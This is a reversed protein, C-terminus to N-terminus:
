YDFPFPSEATHPPRPVLDEAEQYAKVLEGPQVRNRTLRAVAIIFNPDLALAREDAADARKMMAEGGGAYQSDIYYREALAAWAPAYTSDLGVARELMDIAQKNPAPDNPVAASRM